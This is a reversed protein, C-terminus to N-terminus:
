TSALQTRATTTDPRLIGVPSFDVYRCHARAHALLFRRNPYLIRNIYIEAKEFSFSMNAMLLSFRALLHNDNYRRFYGLLTSCQTMAENRTLPSLHTVQLADIFAAIIPHLELAQNNNRGLLINYYTSPQYRPFRSCDDIVRASSLRQAADVKDIHGFSFISNLQFTRDLEHYTTALDEINALEPSAAYTAAIVPLRARAAEILIRGMSEVSALAPFLLVDINAYFRWIERYALNGLYTIRDAPVGVRKLARLIARKSRFTSNADFPGALYLSAKGNTDKYYRAFIGLVQHFNKDNSLRGIYGVRYRHNSRTREVHSPFSATLPYCVMANDDHLSDPFRQMFYRRSFESPFIVADDRRSLPGSLLEQHLFGSWSSTRVDRIIRFSGDYRERLYHYLHAYPGINSVLVDQHGLRQVFKSQESESSACLQFIDHPEASAHAFKDESILQSVESYYYLAGGDAQHTRIDHYSIKM